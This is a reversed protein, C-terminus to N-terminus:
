VTFAIKCTCSYLITFHEKDITSAGDRCLRTAQESNAAKLLGFVGVDLLQLKQSTYFPLRCRIINNKFRLKMVGPM